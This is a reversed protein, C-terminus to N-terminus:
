DPRVTISVCMNSNSRSRYPDVIRTPKTWRSRSSRANSDSAASWACIAASQSRARTSNPRRESYFGARHGSGIEGEGHMESFAHAEVLHQAVEGSRNEAVDSIGGSRDRGDDVVHGPADTGHAPAADVAVDFETRVAAMELDDDRLGRHADIVGLM